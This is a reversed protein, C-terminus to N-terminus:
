ITELTWLTKLQLAVKCISYTPWVNVLIIVIIKKNISMKRVLLMFHKVNCKTIFKIFLYTFKSSM